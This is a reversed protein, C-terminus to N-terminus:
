VGYRKVYVKNGCDYIKMFGKEKLNEEHKISKYEEKSYGMKHKQLQLRNYIIGNKFYFYSPASDHTHEFGLTEYINGMSYRRNAYSILSSPQYNNEFYKLLRSMGGTINLNLLTCARIIEYEYNKNFRPKGFTMLSVLNDEYYLGIKISSNAYGQLHNNNCFDIAERTNVEKIICKRAFIKNQNIKLKNNIMSKCIEQKQDWEHQFIHILHINNAGCTITKHLHSNKNKFKDSHWYEGNYEIALNGILIDLNVGNIYKNNTTEFGLSNIYERIELEGRSVGRIYKCLCTRGPRKFNNQLNFLNNEIKGGCSCELVINSRVTKYKKIPTVLKLDNIKLFNALKRIVRFRRVNKIKINNCKGSCTKNNLYKYPTTKFPTNCVYCNYEEKYNDAQIEGRLPGICSSCLNPYKNGRINEMNKIIINDCESCKIKFNISSNHVNEFEIINNPEIGYDLLRVRNKDSNIKNYDTLDRYKITCQPSCYSQGEKIPEGCECKGTYIDGKNYQLKRVRLRDIKDNLDTNFTEEIENILHQFDSKIIRFFMKDTRNLIKIFSLLGYEHYFYNALLKYYNRNMYHKNKSKNYNITNLKYKILRRNM